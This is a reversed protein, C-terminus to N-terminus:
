TKSIIKTPMFLFHDPRTIRAFYALNLKTQIVLSTENSWPIKLSIIM